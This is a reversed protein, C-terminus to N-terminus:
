LGGGGWESTTSCCNKGWYLAFSLSFSAFHLYCPFRISPMHTNKTSNKCTKQSNSVMDLYFTKFVLFCLYENFYHRYYCFFFFYEIIKIYGNLTMMLASTKLINKLRPSHLM